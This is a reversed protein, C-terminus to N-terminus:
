GEVVQEGRWYIELGRYCHVGEEAGLRPLVHEGVHVGDLLDRPRPLVHTIRTPPGTCGPAAPGPRYGSHATWLRGQAAAAGWLAGRPVSSSAGRWLLLGWLPALSWLPGQPLSAPGLTTSPCLPALGTISVRM